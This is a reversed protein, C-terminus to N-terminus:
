VYLRNMNNEKSAMMVKGCEVSTNGLFWDMSIGAKSDGQPISEQPGGWFYSIFVKPITRPIHAELMHWWHSMYLELVPRHYPTLKELNIGPHM